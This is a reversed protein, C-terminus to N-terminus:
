RGAGRIGATADASGVETIHAPGLGVLGLLVVPQDFSVTVTVTTGTVNITGRHGASALYAQAAAQAAARDLDAVNTTRIAPGLAQAGARAAEGAEDMARVKANLIEGGDYALGVVLLLASMLVVVMASVVGSEDTM